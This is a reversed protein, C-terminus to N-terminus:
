QRDARGTLTDLRGLIGELATTGTEKIVSGRMLAKHKVRLAATASRLHPVLPVRTPGSVPISLSITGLATKGPADATTTAILDVSPTRGELPQARAM